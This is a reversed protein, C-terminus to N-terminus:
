VFELFVQNGLLRGRPTLRLRDKDPGLFELLDLAILKEIQSAFEDCFDLNFRAKFESRSVGELTLRLGMMLTESMETQRNIPQFGTTASTRPFISEHSSQSLHQIYTLPSRTNSTRFGGVFGHAGAGFGFYPLNRWYQLNHRCAWHLNFLLDPNRMGLDDNGRAWNSIEYQIYGTGSLKECALEYMEAALDSDPESILGRAAWQHMPTGQELTLAYLSFHEPSFNLAQTLSEDWIDIAQEPLGFILDLSLNDFRARRAWKVSELVDDFHHQRELFALELPHASQMGLSLRNIGASKLDSLYSFSLTGPNAELSIEAKPSLNFCSDLTHIIKAISSAPLLSPTGGGFFVSCVPFWKGSSETLSRIERQVADVYEPILSDLGAYTTFDCYACRHRCFPIHIYVAHTEM